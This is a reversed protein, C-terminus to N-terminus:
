MSRRAAARRTASRWRIAPTRFPRSLTAPAGRPPPTTRMPWTASRWAAPTTRACAKSLPRRATRCPREYALYMSAYLTDGGVAPVEHAYLISGLAPVRDYSHDTHWDGGINTIQHPEKVVEAIMPYGAVPRFFRNVNIPGWREAFAIHQEPTLSQGRFFIVGFHALARRIEAFQSDSPPQSLDVGHIEAGLAASTPRAEIAEFSPAEAPGGAGAVDTTIQTSM